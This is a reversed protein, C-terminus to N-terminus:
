SNPRPRRYWLGCLAKFRVGFPFVTFLLFTALLSLPSHMYIKRDSSRIPPERLVEFRKGNRKGWAKLARSMFVDEAAYVKESFGGVAQFAERSCFIFSGGCIGIKMLGYSLAPLLVRMAWPQRGGVLEIYAGGGASTGSDLRSLAAELLAATPETDADLFIFHKGAAARAGVNRARSIQNVPESVVRAGLRAAVAGTADTSNNDVVIVEGLRPTSKMAEKLLTLTRPLLEEENFAPIIVSYDVRM